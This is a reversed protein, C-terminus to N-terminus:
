ERGKPSASSKAFGKTFAENIAKADQDFQAVSMAHGCLNQALEELFDVLGEPADNTRQRSAIRAYNDIMRIAVSPYQCAAQRFANLPNEFLGRFDQGELVLWRAKKLVPRHDTDIWTGTQSEIVAALKDACTIATYFDNIAPSLARAAIEVLLRIRFVVGQNDSRYPGIPIHRCVEKEDAESTASIMPEGEVVHQGPAVHVVVRCDRDRFLKILAENDVDEVYGERPATVCTAFALEDSPEGVLDLSRARADQALRDISSDVFMTRGLAHLSVALMAINVAQLLLLAGLTLLPVDEIPAEADIALMAILSIILTFSLGGLSVRVLTRELWRDILRVGLNGAAMSLVILTISFYLSIFAANIGAAVGAFDKATDATAVPALDRDLLWQTAGAQDVWLMGIGFPFAAVVACVALMWYNALLRHLIWGPWGTLHSLKGM